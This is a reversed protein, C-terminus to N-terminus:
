RKRERHRARSSRICERRALSACALWMRTILPGNSLIYTLLSLFARGQDGSHVRQLYADNDGQAILLMAPGHGTPRCECQNCGKTAHHLAIYEFPRIPNPVCWARRRLSPVSWNTDRRARARTWSPARREQVWKECVKFERNKM